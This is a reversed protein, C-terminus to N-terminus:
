YVIEATFTDNGSSIELSSGCAKLASDAIALGLGSSSRDTRSKDGKVFPMKLDKTDVKGTTDNTVTLKKADIEVRVTGDRRCYKVANSLLNEVATLYQERDNKITRDGEITLREDLLPLYKEACEEVLERLSFESLRIEKMTTRRNLDLTRCVLQDTFAVNELISDLYRREKEGKCLQRLNEAYGGIAALPTKIDHALNNTLARQYDEFAYQAENLVQRRWSYLLALSMTGVLACLTGLLWFMRTRDNWIHVIYRLQLTYSEGGVSVPRAQQEEIIDDGSRLVHAEYVPLEGRSTTEKGLMEAVIKEDAGWFNTMFSIPYKGDDTDSIFDFYEGEFGNTDIDYVETSLIRTEFTKPVTELVTVELVSPVFERKEPDVVASRVKYSAYKTGEMRHFKEYIEELDTIGLERFDCTYKGNNSENDKDFKLTGIFAMRNDCVVKGDNSILFAAAANGEDDSTVTSFWREKVGIDYRTYYCMEARTEAQRDKNNQENIRSQLLSINKNIENELQDSIYLGVFQRVALSFLATIVIALAACKAFISLFTTRKRQQASRKKKM